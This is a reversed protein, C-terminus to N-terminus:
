PLKNFNLGLKLNQNWPASSLLLWNNWGLFASSCRQLDVPGGSFSTPVASAAPSGAPVEQGAEMGCEPSPESTLPMFMLMTHTHPPPTHGQGVKPGQPGASCPNFVVTSRLGGGRRGKLVM